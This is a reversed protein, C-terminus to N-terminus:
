ATLVLNVIEQVNKLTLATIDNAVKLHKKMGKQRDNLDAM